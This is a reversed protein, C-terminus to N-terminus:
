NRKRRRVHRQKVIVWNDDDPTICMSHHEWTGNNRKIRFNFWPLGGQDIKNVRVSRGRSILKRYARKTDAHLFYQTAGHGPVSVIRIRDGVRLQNVKM